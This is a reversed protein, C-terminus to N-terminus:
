LDDDDDEVPPPAAKKKAPAPVAAKDVKAHIACDTVHEALKEKIEHWGDIDFFKARKETSHPQVGLKEIIFDATIKFGLAEQIDGINYLAPM